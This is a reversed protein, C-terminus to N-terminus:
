PLILFKLGLKEGSILIRMCCLFLIFCFFLGEGSSVRWSFLRLESMLLAIFSWFCSLHFLNVSDSLKLVCLLFSQFVIFSRCLEVEDGGGVCSVTVFM